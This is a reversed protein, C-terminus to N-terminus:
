IWGRERGKREKKRRNEIFVKKKKEAKNLRKRRELAETEELEKVKIFEEEEIRRKKWRSRNEIM